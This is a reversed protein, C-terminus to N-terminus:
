WGCGGGGGYGYYGGQGTLSYYASGLNYFFNSIGNEAEGVLRTATKQFILEALGV